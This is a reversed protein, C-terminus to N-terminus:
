IYITQAWEMKRRQFNVYVRSKQKYMCDRDAGIGPPGSGDALMLYNPQLTCIRESHTAVSASTM